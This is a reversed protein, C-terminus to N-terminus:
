VDISKERRQIIEKLHLKMDKCYSVIMCVAIALSVSNTMFQICCYFIYMYMYLTM